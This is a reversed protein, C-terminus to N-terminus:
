QFHGRKRIIKVSVPFVLIDTLSQAILIGWIGLIKESLWLVPLFLLGNRLVALFLGAKWDKCVQFQTVVLQSYMVLPLVFIQSGVILLLVDEGLLDGPIMKLIGRGTLFLGVVAISVMWIGFRRAVFFEEKKTKGKEMGQGAIPQYAQCIAIVIGFPLSMFRNAATMISQAGLSYRGAIVNTAWLGISISGQRALSPLGSKGIERLLMVPKIRKCERTSNEKKGRNLRYVKWKFLFIIWFFTFFLFSLIEGLVVGWVVAQFKDVGMYIMIITALIQGVGMVSLGASSLGKKGMGRFITGFTHSFILAPAFLLMRRVGQYTLIFSEAKAGLCYVWEEPLTGGLIVLLVGALGGWVLGSNGKKMAERNKETVTVCGTGMAFFYAIATIWAYVTAVGAYAALNTEATKGKGLIWIEFYGALVIAANSMLTSLFYPVILPNKGSQAKKLSDNM